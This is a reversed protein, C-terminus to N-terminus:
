QRESTLYSQIYYALAATMIALVLSVMALQREQESLPQNTLYSRAIEFPNRVPIRTEIIEENDSISDQIMTHQLDKELLQVVDFHGLHVALNLAIGRSNESVKSNLLERVVELRGMQAAAILADGRSNESVESNLLERFIELYGGVAANVLARGRSAESVESNLLERVVELHGRCVAEVLAYTEHRESVPGTALLLAVIEPDWNNTAAEILASGRAAQAEEANPFSRLQGDRDVINTYGSGRGIRNMMSVLSESSSSNPFIRRFNQFLSHVRYEPTNRAFLAPSAGEIEELPIPHCINQPPFVEDLVQIAVARIAPDQEPRSEGTELVAKLALERLSAISSVSSSMKSGLQATKVFM